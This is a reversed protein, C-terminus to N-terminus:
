VNLQQIYKSQTHDLLGIIISLARHCDFQGLIFTKDEHLLTTQVFEAHAEYLTFDVNQSDVHIQYLMIQVLDHLV